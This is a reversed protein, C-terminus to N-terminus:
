WRRGPWISELYAGLAAELLAMTAFRAAPAPDVAQLLTRQLEADLHEDAAVQARVDMGSAWRYGALLTYIVAGLSFVDARADPPQHSVEPASYGPTTPPNYFEGATHRREDYSSEFDVIRIVPRDVRTRYLVNMPNLDIHFIGLAHIEGLARAIEIGIRVDRVLQEPAPETGVSSALPFEDCLSTILYRRGDALYGADHVFPFYPSEPRERNIVSLTRWENDLDREHVLGPKPTIKILVDVPNHKERAIFLQHRRHGRSPHGGREAALWQLRRYRDFPPSSPDIPLRAAKPV